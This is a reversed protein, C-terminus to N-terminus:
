FLKSVCGRKTSLFGNFAEGLLGHHFNDIIIVVPASTGDCSRICQDIFVKNAYLRLNLKAYENECQQAIQLLFQRLDKGSNQEVTFCAVADSMM